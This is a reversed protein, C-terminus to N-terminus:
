EESEAKNAIVKNMADEIAKIRDPNNGLFIAVETDRIAMEKIKEENQCTSYAEYYTM